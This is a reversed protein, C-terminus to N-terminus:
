QLRNLNKQFALLHSESAAMLSEFASQIDDPLDEGLFVEYMGINAIEAQVGTAYIEELTEPLILYESSTDEPVTIGYAEFLPLLLAIHTEEAKMINEFPRTVDFASLILEYEARAFYEDQIAYILMEDLSYQSDESAGEAGFGNDTDSDVKSTDSTNPANTVEVAEPIPEAEVPAEVQPASCGAILLVVIILLATFRTNKIMIIERKPKYKMLM